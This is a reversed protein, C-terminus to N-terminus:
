RDVEQPHGATVFSVDPVRDSLANSCEAASKLKPTMLPDPPYGTRSAVVRGFLRLYPKSPQEEDAKTKALATQVAHLSGHLMNM